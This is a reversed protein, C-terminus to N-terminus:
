TIFAMIASHSAAALGPRRRILMKSMLWQAMALM